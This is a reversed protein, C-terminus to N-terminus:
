KGSKKGNTSAENMKQKFTKEQEVKILKRYTSNYKIYVDKNIKGAKYDKLLKNKKDRSKMLGRSMHFHYEHRSSKVPFSQEIINKIEYSLNEWKENICNGVPELNHVGNKFSLWNVEKMARYTHSLKVKKVKHNLKIKAKIALHDAICINTISYIGDLNTVFNDLCTGSAVRTIGKIKNTIGFQICLNEWEINQELFNDLRKESIKEIIQELLMFGLDSYVTKQGIPNLL